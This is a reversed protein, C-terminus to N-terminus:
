DNPTFAIFISRWTSSCSVHQSRSVSQFSTWFVLHRMWLDLIVPDYLKFALALDDHHAQFSLVLLVSTPLSPRPPPNPDLVRLIELRMRSQKHLRGDSNPSTLLLPWAIRTCMTAHRLADKSIASTAICQKPNSSYTVTHGNPVRDTLKHAIIISIEGM